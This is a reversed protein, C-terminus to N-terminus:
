PRESGPSRSTSVDPRITLEDQDSTKEFKTCGVAANPRTTTTARAPSSRASATKLADSSSSETENSANKRVVFVGSTLMAYRSQPSKCVAWSRM